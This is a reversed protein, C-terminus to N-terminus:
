LFVPFSVNKLMGLVLAPLMKLNEPVGLGGGAGGGGGGGVMSKAYASLMEVVKGRVLERASELSHTGTREVGKNALWTAIAGEDAGRWVEALSSTTPLALTIVRIARDGAHTTHLIGTQIVIYPKTLEEEIELEITYSTDHPVTPMALLDTSRVFFNGHFSSLRIGRTARVRTIAEVMFPTKLVATFESNFKQIDSASSSSASSASFTPGYYYTQGSTYHPLCSLTTLDLYTTTSSSSNPLTPRSSPSPVPFLFMDVSIYARSCEIAFTKYWPGNVQM